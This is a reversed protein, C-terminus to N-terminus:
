LQAARAAHRLPCQMMRLFSVVQTRIGDPHLNKPFCLLATCFSKIHIPQTNLPSIFADAVFINVFFAKLQADM